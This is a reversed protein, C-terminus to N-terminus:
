SVSIIFKYTSYVNTLLLFFIIGKKRESIMFIFISLLVEYIYFGRIIHAIDDFLYLTSSIPRLCSFLFLICLMLVLLAVFLIKEIIAILKENKMKFQGEINTKNGIIM